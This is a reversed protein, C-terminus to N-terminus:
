FVRGSFPLFNPRLDSRKPKIGSKKNKSTPKKATKLPKKSPEFAASSKIIIESSLITEIVVPAAPAPAPAPVPVPTFIAERNPVSRGLIDFYSPESTFPTVEKLHQIPPKNTGLNNNLAEIIMNKKEPLISIRVSREGDPYITEKAKHLVTYGMAAHILFQNLSNYLAGASQNSPLDIDTFTEPKLRLKLISSVAKQTESVQFVKSLIRELETWYIYDDCELLVAYFLQYPFLNSTGHTPSKPRRGGRLPYRLLLNLGFWEFKLQDGESAADYFQQGAPTINIQDSGTLVFCLGFEEFTAKWSEVAQHSLSRGDKGIKWFQKLDAYSHFEFFSVFVDWADRSNNNESFPNPYSYGSVRWFDKRELFDDAM